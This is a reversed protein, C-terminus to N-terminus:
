LHAVGLYNNHNATMIVIYYRFGSSYVLESRKM